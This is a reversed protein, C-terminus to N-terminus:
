GSEDPQILRRAQDRYGDSIVRARLYKPMNSQKVDGDVTRYWREIENNDTM